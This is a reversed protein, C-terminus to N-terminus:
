GEAQKDLEAKKYKVEGDLCIPEKNKKRKAKISVCLISTYVCLFAYYLIDGANIGWANIDRANIDGANINIKVSMNFEFKVSDEVTLTGNKVDNLMEKENTYIKM